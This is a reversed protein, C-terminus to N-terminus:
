KVDEYLIMVPLYRSFIDGMLEKRIVYEMSFTSHWREMHSNQRRDNDRQNRLDIPTM